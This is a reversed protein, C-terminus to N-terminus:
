NWEIYNELPKEFSLRTVQVSDWLTDYPVDQNERLEYYADAAITCLEALHASLADPTLGETECKFGYTPGYFPTDIVVYIPQKM